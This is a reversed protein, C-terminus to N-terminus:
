KITITSVLCFLPVLFCVTITIHPLCGTPIFVKFLLVSRLTYYYYYYYILCFDYLTCEAGTNCVLLGGSSEATIGMCKTSVTFVTLWERCLSTITTIVAKLMCHIEFM